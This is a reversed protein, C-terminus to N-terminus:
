EFSYEKGTLLYDLSINFEKSLQTLIDISPSRRGQEYMGVTSPSVHLRNALQMQTIGMMRRLLAIRKGLVLMGEKQRNKMKGCVIRLFVLFRDHM